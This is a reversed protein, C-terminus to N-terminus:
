FIRARKALFPVVILRFLFFLLYAGVITPSLFNDISDLAAIQQGIFAYVCISPIIGWVTASTFAQLSLVTLGSFVNVLFFPIISAVRAVLLYYLGHKEIADNFHEFKHAYKEQIWRGIVYRSALFLLVAGVLAGIFAYIAGMVVGFLLGAAMIFLTSGPLACLSASIYTCLYLCVSFVYHARVYATLDTIHEHLWVLSLMETLQSYRLAMMAAIFLLALAYRLLSRQKLSQANIM